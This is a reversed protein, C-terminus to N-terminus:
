ATFRAPVHHPGRIAPTDRWAPTATLVPRRELIHRLATSTELRALASGLCYHAGHGFTLPSPGPRGPLFQHPAPYVHPDRNAAAICVLVSEGSRIHVGALQQDATATRAAAQVPSDLRLLETLVTADAPDIHDALRTGEATPTILRILAAGLLNATTEHGAVAVLIATTVVEDLSLEPATALYSLLDDRPHARRDAAAPLFETILATTAALGVHLTDTDTIGSLLRIVAPSHERLVQCQAPDLGLWAAIVAVHLPWAIQSMVDFPEDVDITSIAQKCLSEVGETLQSIFSHGFVDRVAHRLRDHTPGDTFLMNAAVTDATFFRGATAAQNARPDSIWHPAALVNRAVKHGLVLWAQATADWVVDGERRRAAYFPYPDVADWPLRPMFVDPTTM